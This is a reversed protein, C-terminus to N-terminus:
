NWWSLRRSYLLFQRNYVRVQSLLKKSKSFVPTVTVLHDILINSFIHFRVFVFRLLRNVLSTFSIANVAIWNTPIIAVTITVTVSMTHQSAADRTTVHSSIM